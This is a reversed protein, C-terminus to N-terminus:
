HPLQLVPGFQYFDHVSYGLEIQRHVDQEAQLWDEVASGEPCGRNRWYRNALAAVAQRELARYLSTLDHRDPSNASDGQCVYAQQSEM